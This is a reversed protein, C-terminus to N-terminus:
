KLIQAIFACTSEGVLYNDKNMRVYFAIPPPPSFVICIISIPYFILTEKTTGLVVFLLRLNKKYPLKDFYLKKKDVTTKRRQGVSWRVSTRLIRTM